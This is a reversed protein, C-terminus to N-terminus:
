IVNGDDYQKVNGKQDKLLLLLVVGRCLLMKKLIGGSTFRRRPTAPPAAGLRSEGTSSERRDTRGSPSRAGSRRPGLALLALQALGPGREEEAGAPTVQRRGGWGRKEQHGLKVRHDGAM